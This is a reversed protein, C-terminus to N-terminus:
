DPFIKKVINTRINKKVEWGGGGGGGGGYYTAFCRSSHVQLKFKLTLCYVNVSNTMAFVDLRTGLEPIEPISKPAVTTGHFPNYFLM